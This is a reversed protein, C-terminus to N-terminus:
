ASGFYRSRTTVSFRRCLARTAFAIPAPQLGTFLNLNVQRRYTLALGVAFITLVFWRAAIAHKVGNAYVRALWDFGENFKRFLIFRPEGRHRLLVACLAPSLTLSNVASLAMSIAITLAFQNYLRGTIGPLFAVPVFVAMLVATTAIIPGTVESMAKKAAELPPLGAERRIAL